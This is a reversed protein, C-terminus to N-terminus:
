EASGCTGSPGGGPRGFASFQAGVDAGRAYGGGATQEVALAVGRARWVALRGGRSTRAIVHARSDPTHTWDRDKSGLPCVQRLALRDEEERHLSYCCRARWIRADDDADAETHAPQ